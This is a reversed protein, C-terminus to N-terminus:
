AAGFRRAAQLNPARAGNGARVSATPQRHTGGVRLVAHEVRRLFKQLPLRVPAVGLGGRHPVM